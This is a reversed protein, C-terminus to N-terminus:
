AGGSKILHLPTFTKDILVVTFSKIDSGPTIELPDNPTAFGEIISGGTTEIIYKYPLNIKLINKVGYLIVVDFSDGNEIIAM